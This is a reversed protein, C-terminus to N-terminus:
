LNPKRINRSIRTYHLFLSGRKHKSLATGFWLENSLQALSGLTNDVEVGELTVTTLSQREKRIQRAVSKALTRDISKTPSDQINQLLQSATQMPAIKVASAIFAKQKQSLFKVSENAHDAQSHANAISLVVHTANKVIRVECQCGSRDRYPCALVTNEIMGKMSPWTRKLQFDGYLSKRDRHTGRFVPIGASANFQILQRSIYGSIEDETSDCREWRGIEEWIRQRAAARKKKPFRDVAEDADATKPVADSHDDESVNKNKSAEDGHDDESESSAASSVADVDVPM